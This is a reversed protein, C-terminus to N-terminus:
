LILIDYQERLEVLKKLFLLIISIMELYIVLGSATLFIFHKTAASESGGCKIKRVTLSLYQSFLM